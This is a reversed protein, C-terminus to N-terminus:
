LKYDYGPSSPPVPRVSWTWPSPIIIQFVQRFVQVAVVLRFHVRQVVSSSVCIRETARRWQRIHRNKSVCLRRRAAAHKEDARVEHDMLKDDILQLTTSSHSGPKRETYIQLCVLSCQIRLFRSIHWSVICNKNALSMLGLFWHSPIKKKM